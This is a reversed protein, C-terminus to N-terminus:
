RKSKTAPAKSSSMAKITEPNMPEDPSRLTRVVIALNSPRQRRTSTRVLATVHHRIGPIRVCGFPYEGATDDSGMVTLSMCIDEPIERPNASTPKPKVAFNWRNAVGVEM